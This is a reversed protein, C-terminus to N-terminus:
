EYRLAVMPDVKAARRAPLWCGFLAIATLLASVGAFTAPDFASVGWLLSSILRTLGLAAFVGIGVGALTLKLGEGIVLWLIDGGQAGLAMRVGIEHTRQAVSFSLVGYIGIVSLGLALAGLTGILLMNLRRPRLEDALRQELTMLSYVPQDRDVGLIASRVAGALKTPAGRTRVALSMVGACAQLYCRYFQPQPSSELARREDGVVGIITMADKGEGLRKGLPDADPFYRRVFTENVLAVSPKGAQDADTFVRGSKLPIGMTRFYDGNVTGCQLFRYEGPAPPPQGEIELGAFTNGFPTLPLMSNAGVAAVGPLPRLREIVQQFYAARSRDDPYKPESLVITMSLIHDPRFGPDVGHLRLFSQGLLGAGVLLVLALGVQAVVLLRSLRHQRRGTTGTARGDENLADNLAIRSSEWAPALGFLLGTFTALLLTFALVRADMPLVPLDSIFMRLLDKGWFALVLGLAAGLGALLASETMLQRVIRRRGAGLALRVAIEKRRQTARALLLNAVNACAILLIFGVAGLYVLLSLRSGGVVHEHLGVL